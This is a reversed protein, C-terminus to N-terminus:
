KVEVAPAVNIELEIDKQQHSLTDLEDLIIQQAKGSKLAKLLNKEEKKLEKLKNELMRLGSKNDRAMKCLAVIKKSIGDIRAPTLMELTKMVILDEM